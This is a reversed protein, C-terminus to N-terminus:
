YFEESTEEKFQSFFEIAKDLLKLLDKGAWEKRRGEDSFIYSYVELVITPNKNLFDEEFCNGFNYLISINGESPKHYNDEQKLYHDYINNLIEKLEKIKDQEKNEM